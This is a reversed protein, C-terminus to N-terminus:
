WEPMPQVPLTVLDFVIAIPLVMWLGAEAIKGTGNNQYFNIKAPQRLTYNLTNANSPRNAITLHMNSLKKRCDFKIDRPVCKFGLSEFKQTTAFYNPTFKNAYDEYQEVYELRLSTCGNKAKCNSGGIDVRFIGKSDGRGPSINMNSLNIDSNLLKILSDDKNPMQLLYAYKEGSLILANEYGKIPQSPLGVAVITDSLSENLEWRATKREDIRDIIHSTAVCGTLGTLALTSALAYKFINKSM